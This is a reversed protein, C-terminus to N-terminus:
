SRNGTQLGALDDHIRVDRVTAIRLIIGVADDEFRAAELQEASEDVQLVFDLRKARAVRCMRALQFLQLLAFREEFVQDLKL